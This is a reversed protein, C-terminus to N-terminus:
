FYVALATLKSNNLSYRVSVFWVSLLSSQFFGLKNQIWLDFFNFVSYAPNRALSIGCIENSVFNYELTQDQSLIFAPPTSLVHLDFPTM